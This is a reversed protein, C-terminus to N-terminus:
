SVPQDAPVCRECADRAEVLSRTQMLGLTWCSICGRWALGAPLLLLLSLGNSRGALAFAALALVTGVVGRLYHERLTRSAFLTDPEM